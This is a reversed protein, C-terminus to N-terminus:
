SFSYHFLDGGGNCRATRGDRAPAFIANADASPLALDSALRFPRGKPLLFCDGTKLHVPGSVGEIALWCQSSIEANCKIGEYSPFQIVWNGGAEFGASVYSRPKLLALIDSLPTWRTERRFSRSLFAFQIAHITGPGRRIQM